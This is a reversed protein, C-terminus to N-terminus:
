KLYNIILKASEEQSNDVLFSNLYNLQQSILEERYQKNSITKKIIKVLSSHSKAYSLSMTKNNINYLSELDKPFQYYFPAFIVPLGRSIASIHSGSYTTIFLDYDKLIDEIPFSGPEIIVGSKKIYHPISEGPRIKITISIKKHSKKFEILSKVVREDNRTSAYIIKKIINRSNLTKSKTSKPFLPSGAKIFKGKSSFKDRKILNEHRRGWGFIFDINNYVGSTWLERQDIGPTSHFVLSTKKGKDKASQFMARDFLRRPRVGIVNDPQTVTIIKKSIISFLLSQPLLYKFVNSIGYKQVEYFSKGEFFFLERIESEKEYYISEFERGKEKLFNNPEFDVFDEFNILNAKHSFNKSFSNKLNIPLVIYFSNLDSHELLSEFISLHSKQSAFFLSKKIQIDEPKAVVSLDTGEEFKKFMMSRKLQSDKFDIIKSAIYRSLYKNILIKELAKQAYFFQRLSKDINTNYTSAKALIINELNHKRYEKPIFKHFELFSSLVSEHLSKETELERQAFTELSTYFFDKYDFNLNSM